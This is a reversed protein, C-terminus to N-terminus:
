QIPRTWNKTAWELELKSDFHPQLLWNYCHVLAQPQDSHGTHSVPSTVWRRASHTHRWRAALRDSCCLINVFLLQWFPLLTNASFESAYSLLHPQFLRVFHLHSATQLCQEALCGVTSMNGSVNTACNRLHWFTKWWFPKVYKCAACRKPNNWHYTPLQVVRLYIFGWNWLLM